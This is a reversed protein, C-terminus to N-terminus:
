VQGEIHDMNTPPTWYGHDKEFHETNWTNIMTKFFLSVMRWHGVKRFRRNSTFVEGRLVSFRLISVRKTLLYDEAFLAGESFGGLQEFRRRDFLLFMGTGFPKAWSSLRQIVNNCRYLLNDIMSGDSCAISVTACHLRRQGMTTVARRILTTDRLEVDADLFLIYQSSSMRAGSNRGAAPLGGPIIEINLRDAFRMAESVTADTSAADAVFVKTMRMHPYDQKSLSALLQPLYQQENKAPVVISLEPNIMPM